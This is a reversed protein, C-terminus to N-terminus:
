LKLVSLALNHSKQKFVWRLVTGDSESGPLDYRPLTEGTANQNTIIM